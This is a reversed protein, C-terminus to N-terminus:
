PHALEHFAPMGPMSPMEIGVDIQARIVPVSGTLPDDRSTDVIRFEIETEEQAYVGDPPLRLTVLYKGSSRQVASSEGAITLQGTSLLVCLVWRRPNM